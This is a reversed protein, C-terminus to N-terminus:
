PSYNKYIEKDIYHFVKEVVNINTTKYFNRVHPNSNVECVLPGDKSFLIDVGSFDLGVALTAKKAVDIEENTPIYSIMTCGNPSNARFDNKNERIVAGIFEGGVIYIRLDKGYSEKIYEQFLLPRESLEITKDILESEKEILYVQEGFSGFGEKVIMPLSLTDIVNKLFGLNNESFKTFSKPSIITKPTRIKNKALMIHTLTKDDCIEIAKSSNFLRVGLNEFSQALRIDKDFFIVFDPKNNIFLNTEFSNSITFLVETNSKSILNIGIKNAESKFWEVHYKFVEHDKFNDNYIILGNKIM